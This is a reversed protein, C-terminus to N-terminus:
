DYILPISLTLKTGANLENEDVIDEYQFDLKYNDRQLLIIKREEIIGLARSVHNGKKLEKAKERGIGNDEIEAILQNERIDFRLWLHGQGEKASLGHNIANEVFPQMLTSPILLQNTNISEAIQFSVDFSHEFRLQELSVYNDLLEIEEQLTSYNKNTSELIMRMLKSFKVIYQNAEAPSKQYIFKQISNLANFIFHPNMQAQVAKLRLEYFQRQIENKEDAKKKQVMQRNKDVFYFSIGLLGLLLLIFTNTTYWPKNITFLLQQNEHLINGESDYASVLLEYEGSSLSNFLLSNEQTEQWETSTPLLKWKYSFNGLDTYSITNFNVEINNQKYKLDKLYETDLLTNNVLLDNFYFKSKKKIKTESIPISYLKKESIAYIHNKSHVIDVINQDKIGYSNGFKSLMNMNEADEILKYLGSTTALWLTNTEDSTMNNVFLNETGKVIDIQKNNKKWLGSKNSLIYLENSKDQYLSHIYQNFNSSDIQVITDRFFEFLGETTGIYIADNDSLISYSRKHHIKSAIGNEYVYAGGSSALVIENSKNLNFDKSSKSYNTVIPNLESQVEKNKPLSMYFLGKKFDHLYLKQGTDDLIIKDLSELDFDYLENLSQDIEYQLIRGNKTALILNDKHDVILSVFSDEPDELKFHKAVQPNQNIYTIGTNECLWLNSENDFIFSNFSKDILFQLSDIQEFKENIVFSEKEGNLVIANENYRVKTIMPNHGWLDSYAKVESHEAQLISVSDSHMVLSRHKFNILGQHFFSKSILLQLVSNSETLKQSKFTQYISDLSYNVSIDKAKQDIWLRHKDFKIETLIDNTAYFYRHTSGRFQVWHHEKGMFRHNVLGAEQKNPMDLFHISDNKIYCVANFTSLWLKEDKDIHIDFIDNHPLRKDLEFNKFTVGDFKVLGKDTCFWIFGSSDQVARYVFNSPLGDEM